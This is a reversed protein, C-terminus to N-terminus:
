LPAAIERQHRAAVQMPFCTLPASPSALKCSTPPKWIRLIKAGDTLAALGELDLLCLVSRELRILGASQLQRLVRNATQRSVNAVEALASQSLLIRTGPALPCGQGLKGALYLLGGALRGSTTREALSMLRALLELHQAALKGTLAQSFSPMGLAIGSFAVRPVFAVTTPELATFLMQGSGPHIAPPPLCDGASMVELTIIGGGRRVRQIALAGDLVMKLSDSSRDPLLKTGATLTRRVVRSDALISQTLESMGTARENAEARVVIYHRL